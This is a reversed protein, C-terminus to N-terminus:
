NHSSTSRSLNSEARVEIAVYGESADFFDVEWRFQVIGRVNDGDSPQTFEIKPGPVTDGGGGEHGGGSHIDENAHEGGGAGAAPACVIGHYRLHQLLLLLTLLLPFPSRMRDLVFFNPFPTSAFSVLSFVSNRRSGPLFVCGSIDDTFFTSTNPALPPKPVKNECTHHEARCSAPGQSFPTGSTAQYQRLWARPSPQALFAALGPTTAKMPSPDRWETPM